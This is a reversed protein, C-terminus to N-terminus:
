NVTFANDLVYSQGAPNGLSLQASGSPLAPITLTITDADVFTASANKGNMSATTSQVFGSGRVTVATGAAGSSPTVSGISLPAGNLAVITLGHDTILFLNEGTPDISLADVAQM